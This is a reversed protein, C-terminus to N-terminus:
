KASLLSIYGQSSMRIIETTNQWLYGPLVSSAEDSSYGM